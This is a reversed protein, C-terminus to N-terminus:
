KRTVYVVCALVDERKLEPHQAIIEEITAGKRILEMVYEVTVDTGRIVPKGLMVQPDIAIHDLLSTTKM